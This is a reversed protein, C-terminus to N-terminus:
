VELDYTIISVDDLKVVNELDVDEQSVEAMGGALIPVITVTFEKAKKGLERIKDTAILSLNQPRLQNPIVDYKKRGARTECHGIDGLCGGHGFVFFSGVYGHSLDTPTNKDAKTNNLFVRAQYSAGSHDVGHFEVDARYFPSELRTLDFRIKKSVYPRADM